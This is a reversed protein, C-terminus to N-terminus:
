NSPFYRTMKKLPPINKNGLNSDKTKKSHGQNKPELDLKSIM